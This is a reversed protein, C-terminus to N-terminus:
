IAGWRRPDQTSPVLDPNFGELGSPTEEPALERWLEPRFGEVLNVGGM